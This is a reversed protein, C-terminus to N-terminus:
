LAVLERLAGYYRDPVVIVLHERFRTFAVYLLLLDRIAEDDIEEVDRRLRTHELRAIKRSVKKVWSLRASIDNSYRRDRCALAWEWEPKDHAYERGISLDIDVIQDAVAERTLGTMGAIKGLYLDAPDQLLSSADALAALFKQAAVLQDRYIKSGMPVESLVGLFEEALQSLAYLTQMRKGRCVVDRSSLFSDPIRDTPNFVIGARFETGKAARANMTYVGTESEIASVLEHTQARSREDKQEFYILAVDDASYTQVLSRVLENVRSVPSRSYQVVEIQGGSISPAHSGLSRTRKLLHVATESQSYDAATALTNTLFCRSFSTLRGGLRYNLHLTHYEGDTEKLWQDINNVAVHLTQGADYAVTLPVAFDTVGYLFVALPGTRTFPLEQFEDIMVAAVRRSIRTGGSDFFLRHERYNFYTRENLLFDAFEALTFVTVDLYREPDLYRIMQQIQTRQTRSFTIVLVVGDNCGTDACNRAANVARHILVVTKGTGPGGEVFVRTHTSEVVDRQHPHLFYRWHAFPLLLAEQLAGDRQSVSVNSSFTCTSRKVSLGRVPDWVEVPFLSDSVSNGTLRKYAESETSVLEVSQETGSNAPDLLIDYPRGDRKVVVRKERWGSGTAAVDVDIIISREKEERVVLDVLRYYSLVRIGYAPELDHWSLFPLELGYKVCFTASEALIRLWGEDLSGYYFLNKHYYVERQATLLSRTRVFLRRTATRFVDDDMVDTPLARDPLFETKFLFDSVNLTKMGYVSFRVYAYVNLLSFFANFALGLPLPAPQAHSYPNTITRVNELLAFPTDASFRDYFMRNLEALHRTRVRLDEHSLAERALCEAAQRMLNPAAYSGFRSTTLDAYAQVILDFFQQTLGANM